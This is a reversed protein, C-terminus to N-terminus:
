SSSKGEKLEKSAQELFLSVKKQIEILNHAKELERKTRSLEKKLRAVEQSSNNKKKKPMAQEQQELKKLQKRWRLPTDYYLGERRLILGKEGHKAKDLMSLIRLKEEITYRRRSASKNQPSAAVIKPDPSSRGLDSREQDKDRGSGFITPQFSPLSDSKLKM